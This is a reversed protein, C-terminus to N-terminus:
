VVPRYTGTIGFERRLKKSVQLMGRGVEDHLVSFVRFEPEMGVRDIRVHYDDGKEEVRVQVGDATLEFRKAKRQLERMFDVRQVFRESAEEYSEHLELGIQSGHDDRWTAWCQNPKLFALVFSARNNNFRFRQSISVSM